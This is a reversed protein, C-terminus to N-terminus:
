YGKTCIHKEIIELRLSLDKVSSKLENLSAYTGKRVKDGSKSYKDLDLWLQDLECRLDSKTFDLQIVKSVM